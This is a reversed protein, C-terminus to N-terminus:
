SNIIDIILIWVKTHSELKTISTVKHGFLVKVSKKLELTFANFTGVGNPRAVGKPTMIDFRIGRKEM